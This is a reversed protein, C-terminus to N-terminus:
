EKILRIRTSKMDGSRILLTYVGASLGPLELSLRENLVANFSFCARGYIDYVILDAQGYEHGPEIILLSSFPNPYVRPGVYHSDQLSTVVVQHCASTDLCGNQLVMVAYSGNAAATFSQSTENPIAAFGNSCDLWQYFAGSASATLTVQNLSVATDVPIVVLTTVINSDCGQATQFHSTQIMAVSSSTSDPFTYTEGQCTTANVPIIYFTFDGFFVKDGDSGFQGMFTDYYADGNILGVDFGHSYTGPMPSTNQYCLSLNAEGDNNWVELGNSGYTSVFVDPDNDYDYDVLIIHKDYNSSTLTAFVSFTGSGNNTLITLPGYMCGFVLVADGDKDMDGAAVAYYSDSTNGLTVGTDTFTGTGNNLLVRGGANSSVVIADKDNDGDVDAFAIDNSSGFNVLTLNSFATFYGIGNNKFVAVNSSMWGALMVDLDGDGDLDDIGAWHCGINSSVTQFLTFGGAGNNKYIKLGASNYFPIVIADLDTDGDVDKLYVGYNDQEGSAPIITQNLSFVGSGNNVFVKMDVYAHVTFADADGDGDIDGLAVGFTPLSDINQGSNIFNCCQSHAEKPFALGAILIIALIGKEIFTIIKDAHKMLKYKM